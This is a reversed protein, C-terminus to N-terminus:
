GLVGARHLFQILYFAPLNLLVNLLHMFNALYSFGIFIKAIRHRNYFNKGFAFIKHDILKSFICTPTKLM